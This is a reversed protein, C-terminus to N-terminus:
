PAGLMKSLREIESQLAARDRQCEAEKLELAVRAAEAAALETRRAQESSGLLRHLEQIETRYDREAKRFAEESERYASLEERNVQRRDVVLVRYITVVASIAAVVVAGIATVVAPNM